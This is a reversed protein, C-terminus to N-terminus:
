NEFADDLLTFAQERHKSVGDNLEKRVNHHVFFSHPM